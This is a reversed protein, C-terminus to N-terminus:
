ARTRREALLKRQHCSYYWGYVTTTHAGATQLADVFDPFAVWESESGHRGSRWRWIDILALKSWRGHYKFVIECPDPDELVVFRSADDPLTIECLPNRVGRGNLDPSVYYSVPHDPAKKRTKM